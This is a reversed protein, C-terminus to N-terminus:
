LVAINLTVRIIDGDTTVTYPAGPFREAFILENSTENVLYYGYVTGAADDFTWVEEPYFASGNTIIWSNSDLLKSAYGGGTVETYTGVLDDDSPIVDNSYLKLILSETTTNKGLIYELTKQRGLNTIVVSM